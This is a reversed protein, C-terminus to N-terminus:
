QIGLQPSDFYKSVLSCVVQNQRIYLKKFFRPRSGYERGWKRRPKQLFINRKSYEMIQGVKM